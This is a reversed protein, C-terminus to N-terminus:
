STSSMRRVPPLFAEHGIPAGTILSVSAANGRVSINPNTINLRIMTAKMTLAQSDRHFLRHRVFFHVNRTSLGSRNRGYRLREYWRMTAWATPPSKHGVWITM